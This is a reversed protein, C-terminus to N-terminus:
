SQAADAALIANRSPRGSAALNRLWRQQFRHTHWNYLRVRLPASPSTVKLSRCALHQLCFLRFLPHEPSLGPEFGDLLARKLRDIRRGIFQPKAKLIELQTYLRALDLYMGGTSSRAFDLVTVANGDVLVNAPSLDAHVAVRRLASRPVSRAQRDFAALLTRRERESYLRTGRSVLKRLRVDLYERMEELSVQGEVPSVAQFTRVWLGVRRVSEELAEFGARLWAADRDLRASLTDGQAEETVIVLLEPFCAIPRVCRMDTSGHADFARHTRLATDFETTVRGQMIERQEPGGGPLKFRKLYVSTPHGALWVRARLVISLPREIMELPEFEVDGGGFCRDGDDALARLADGFVRDAKARSGSADGDGRWPVRHGTPPRAGIAPDRM